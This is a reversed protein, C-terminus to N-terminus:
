AGVRKYLRRAMLVEGVSTNKRECVVISGPPFEWIEDEPDYKETPLVEFVNNGLALGKTPRSVSTGEELLPIYIIETMDLIIGEM